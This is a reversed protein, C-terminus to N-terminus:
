WIQDTTVGSVSVKEVNSFCVRAEPDKTNLYHNKFIALIEHFGYYAAALLPKQSSEETTSNPDLGHDLMAEVHKHLGYDCAKQM